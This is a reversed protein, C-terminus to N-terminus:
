GFDEANIKNLTLTLDFIRGANRENQVKASTEWYIQLEFENYTTLDDDERLDCEFILRDSIRTSDKFQDPMVYKLEMPLKKEKLIDMSRTEFNWQTNKAVLTIEYNMPYVIDEAELHVAEDLSLCSNNVNVVNRPNLGLIVKKKQSYNFCESDVYSGYDDEYPEAVVHVSPSDDNAHPIDDTLVQFMGERNIRMTVRALSNKVPYATSFNATYIGKDYPIFKHVNAKAFTFGYYLDAVFGIDTFASIDGDTDTNKEVYNYLLNNTELDDGGTGKVFYLNYTDSSDLDTETNSYAIDIIGVYRTRHELTDSKKIFPYEGTSEDYFIFDIAHAPKTIDIKTEAKVPMSQAVILNDLKAQGPNKWKELNKEDIIYCVMDGPAGYQKGMIELKLLYNDQLAEPIRFTFAIGVHKDGLLSSDPFPRLILNTDDNVTTMLKNNMDPSKVNIEGFTFTENILNGYSKYIECGQKIDFEAPATLTLTEADTEKVDIKVICRESLENVLLLYDGEYFIDFASDNVRIYNRSSSDEKALAVPKYTHMPAKSRFLDYFGAYPKYAQVTGNKALEGRLQYLEDRIDRLEELYTKNIGSITDSMKAKETQLVYDTYPINGLNMANRVTTRDEVDGDENEFAVAIHSAKEGAVKKTDTSKEGRLLFGPTEEENFDDPYNKDTFDVGKLWMYQAIDDMELLSTGVKTLDLFKVEM